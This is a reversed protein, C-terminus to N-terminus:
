AAVGPIDLEGTVAATILAQRHEQLLEIQRTHAHATHDRDRRMSDFVRALECQVSHHPTPVMLELVQAVNVRSFTSGIKQAEPQDVGVTNLAYALFLQSEATSTILCVDQGMCFPEDTEVYAAIGISANRSYIIDGRKPRRPRDALDSYDGLGVFRHARTLDIRGPSIDGPSVVPYGSDLYEPTRHKCDVVWRRKLPSWTAVDHLRGRISADLRQDLFEIMRHKRSILADIRATETDLFDAIARQAALPRYTVPLSRVRDASVHFINAGTAISAFLGDAFAYRGWWALFRSDTSLRPRPRLLTNQFCVTGNLEGNWM